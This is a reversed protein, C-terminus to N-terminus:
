EKLERVRGLELGRVSAAGPERVNRTRTRASEQGEHEKLEQIIGASAGKM